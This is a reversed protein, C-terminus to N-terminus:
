DRPDRAPLLRWRYRPPRHLDETDHHRQPPSACCSPTRGPLPGGRGRRDTADVTSATACSPRSCPPASGAGCSPTCSRRSRRPTRSCGPTSPAGRGRRPRGPGPPRRGQRHGAARRLRPRRPHRVGPDARRRLEDLMWRTGPSRLISVAPGSCAGRGASTAPSRRARRPPRAQAAQRPDRFLPVTTLTDVVLTVGVGALLPPFVRFVNVMRDWPTASSPTSCCSPSPGSPSAPPSSPSSAAAWRTAPSCPRAADRPPRAGPRAARRLEGHEARRHAPRPHRRPRRHRHRRGQLRPRRPPVPDPRLPDGRRLLRPRGRAARGSRLGRRRGRPRRRAHDHPPGPSAPHRRGRRRRRAPASSRARDGASSTGRGAASRAADDDGRRGTRAFRSRSGARTSAVADLRASTAAAGGSVRTLFPGSSRRRAALIARADDCDRQIQEVLAEVSDFKVEGRLRAVFRVRVHRTTSTATSTSSTPRSCAVHAEAYFTPRRGLSIARRAAGLRRGARVLRRLHRRRAAPDRRAGVRQGHPVRARPGARRRPRRRRAGRPAPRAHANARDLDGEVLAHRIATSSAKDGDTAPPASADVLALGDVEFGLEAGMARSCPSTAGASTASTSTRAWSWWRAGLCDVLVERM